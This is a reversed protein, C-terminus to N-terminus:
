FNSPSEILTRLIDPFDTSIGDVGMKILKNMEEKNNPNGLRVLIGKRHAESVLHAVLHANLLSYDPPHIAEGKIRLIEKLGQEFDDNQSLLFGIQLQPEIEKVRKLSSFNFSIVVTDELINNKLIEEILKKEIAENSHLEKKIEIAFKAKGKIVAIAEELTPIKTGKFKPSFWIGADLDKIQKLTLQSVLGTGNTTRDVTADHMVVIHGDKTLRIDFEIMDAKCKIGKEFSPVTNEPAYARAGRHGIIMFENTSINKQM